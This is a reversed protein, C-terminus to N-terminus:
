KESVLEKEAKLWDQLENGETHNQMRKEFIQHARDKIEEAQVKKTRVSTRTRTKVM